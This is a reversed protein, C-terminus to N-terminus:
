TRYAPHDIQDMLYRLATTKGVRRMGTIVTIQKKTLHQHLQHFIKRGHM